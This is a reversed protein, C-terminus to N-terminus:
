APNNAPNNALNNAAPNTAPNNAAPNKAPNNAAPNTAPDNTPPARSGGCSAPSRNWFLPWSRKGPWSDGFGGETKDSGFGGTEGIQGGDTQPSGNGGVGTGGGGGGGGTGGGGDNHGGKGGGGGGGGAHRYVSGAFSREIGDLCDDNRCRLEAPVIGANYGPFQTPPCGGNNQINVGCRPCPKTMKEIVHLSKVDDDRKRFVECAEGVNHPRDCRVCAKAGCTNCTFIQENDVHVQGSICKPEICWRWGPTNDCKYLYQIRLFEKFMTKNTAIEINMALMLMDCEPCPIGLEPDDNDTPVTYDDAIQANVWAKLCAICTNINHNCASNPNYSPFQGASKVEACTTCLYSNKAVKPRKPEPTATSSSRKRKVM